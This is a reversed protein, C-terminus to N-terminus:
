AAADVIVFLDDQSSNERAAARGVFEAVRNKIRRREDVRPKTSHDDRAFIYHFTIVITSTLFHNNPSNDM